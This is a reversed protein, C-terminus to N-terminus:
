VMESSKKKLKKFGLLALGCVGPLLSPTPVPTANALTINGVGSITNRYQGFDSQSFGSTVLYYQVGGNLSLGSFGSNGTFPFDDNAILISDLSDTPNFSGQYLYLYNDWNAPNISTSLIDYLGSTDVYFSQREYHFISQGYTAFPTDDGNELPADFLAGNTTDGSYTVTGARAMQASCFFVILGAGLISPLSRANSM